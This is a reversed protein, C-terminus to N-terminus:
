IQNNIKLVTLTSAFIIFLSSFLAIYNGCFPMFVSISYFVGITTCAIKNNWIYKLSNNSNLNMREISYDFLMAGYFFSSVFFLIVFSFISIFAGIIPTFSLILIIISISIQLFTFMLSVTIGRLINKFFVKYNFKYETGTYQKEVYESFFSLM